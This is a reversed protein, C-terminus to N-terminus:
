NLEWFWIEKCSFYCHSHCIAGTTSPEILDIHGGGYGTIKWFFVVGRKNSTDTKFKESDCWIVPRGFVDARSLQDALLKAGTEIKKGKWDGSKITLRGNFSVGSKILALSMRTACTNVYGANQQQLAEYNYGVESYLVDGDIQVSSYHNKKLTFFSPKM